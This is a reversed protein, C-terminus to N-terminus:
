PEYWHGAEIVKLLHGLTLAKQNDTYGFLKWLRWGFDDGEAPFYAHFDLAKFSTGFKRHIETLLDFADDGSIRLDHFLRTSTDVIERKGVIERILAVVADRRLKATEDNPM